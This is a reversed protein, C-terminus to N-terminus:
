NLRGHLDELNAVWDTYAEDGEERFCEKLESNRLVKSVISRARKVLDEDPKSKGAVWNVVGDPLIRLPKNHLAAVVEAAAIAISELGADEEFTIDDFAELIATTDVHSELDWMWAWADDNDFTGCGWNSM